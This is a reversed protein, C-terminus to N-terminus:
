ATGEQRTATRVVENLDRAPRAGFHGIVEAAAASGAKACRVLDWGSALGHLFGAAYLDGAGTSDIVDPVHVPAVEHVQDATVVISGQDGRTIVVVECTGQLANVADWVDTVGVLSEAEIQNAFLIDIPGDVLARFEDRHRAVCFPDSLTMAVKRGADHAIDIAARLAAKAQPPDWLYGELYVFRGAAILDTDIDEPGLETCAGLYTAMTRQADPTVFILCRATSPGDAAAPTDFHVGLSTLDHRFIVGLEDDAVKGIFAVRSGLASAGAVTNACSGGSVEIAPGMQAYLDNAQPEDVLVMSGMHLDHHELFRVDSQAVVDVIANGIGVIDFRPDTPAPSPPM